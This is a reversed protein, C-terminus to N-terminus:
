GSLAAEQPISLPSPTGESTEATFPCPLPGTSVEAPSQRRCPKCVNPLRPDQSQLQWEKVRELSSLPGHCGARGAVASVLRGQGAQGMGATGMGGGKTKTM